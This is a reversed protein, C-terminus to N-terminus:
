RPRGSSEAFYAPLLYKGREPDDGFLKWLVPLLAKNGLLAAKYPPEIWVTGRKTPTPWTASSPRAARRTGSGSGRICCSSSTSRSPRTSRARARARVAGPRRGRGLRDPEDRDARGSLRGGRGDGDPVGREDPGRRLDRTEYAFYIKPKEPLWPRAERLKGINRRWAGPNAPEGDAAEWGVLRDHISNWQRWPHQTLGTQDAWHWQIVAAEVLSTPTQANYELLRPTSGAGNYWLDFRGYVSPSYDPTQMPLRGDPGQRRADLDRRRRRVLHPHDARPRVRPHRDEGPLLDGPQLGLRLLGRPPGARHAPPVASWGTAPTSACRQQPDLDGDGAGRDRGRHLRLVAGGALVLDDHRGAARHRQLDARPQLQDAALRRPGARVSDPARSLRRVQPQRLGHTGSGGKGVVSTKVTGNSIRGTSPLGFSSRAAKDNYAFKAAAPRCGRGIPYGSRYGPRIGSSTAAAGATATMDDCYDEDVIRRRERRRLLLGRRPLRQRQRLGGRRGGGAVPLHQDAVRQPLEDTSECDAEGGKTGGPGCCARPELWVALGRAAPWTSSRAPSSGPARASWSPYPTRSTKPRGARGVPIQSVAAKQFDAFDVGVRAATAATM